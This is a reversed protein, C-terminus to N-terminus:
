CEEKIYITGLLTMDISTLKRLVCHNVNADNSMPPANKIELVGYACGRMYLSYDPCIIQKIEMVLLTDKIEVEM